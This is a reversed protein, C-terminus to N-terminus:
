NINLYNSVGTNRRMKNKTGDMYSTKWEIQNYESKVHLICIFKVSTNNM